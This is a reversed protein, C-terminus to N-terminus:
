WSVSASKALPSRATVELLFPGLMDSSLSSMKGFISLFMGGGARLRRSFYGNLSIFTPSEKKQWRALDALMRFQARFYRGHVNVVRVTTSFPTRPMRVQRMLQHIAFGRQNPLKCSRCAHSSQDALTFCSVGRVLM